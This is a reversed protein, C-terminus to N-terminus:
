NNFLFVLNPKFIQTKSYPLAELSLLLDLRHEGVMLDLEFRIPHLYHKSRKCFRPLGQLKHPRKYPNLFIRQLNKLCKYVRTLSSKTDRKPYFM